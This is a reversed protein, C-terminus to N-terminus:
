ISVELLCGPRSCRRLQPSRLVKARAPLGLASLLGWCRASASRGCLRMPTMRSVTRHVSHCPLIDRRPAKITRSSPAGGMGSGRLVPTRPDVSIGARQSGNQQRPCEPSSPHLLNKRARGPQTNRASPSPLSPEMTQLIECYGWPAASPSCCVPERTKAQRM